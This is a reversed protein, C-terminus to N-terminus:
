AQPREGVILALQQESGGRILTVTVEAGPQVSALGDQLDEPDGVTQGNFRVLVDGVLVGGRDAAGDAAVGFVLLARGDPASDKQRPALRVAQVNIGLYGRGLPERAARPDGQEINNLDSRMRRVPGALEVARFRAFFEEGFMRAELRALKAGLCFHEGGALPSTRTRIARIDFGPSLFLM